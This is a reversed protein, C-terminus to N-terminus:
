RGHNFVIEKGVPECKSVSLMIGYQNADSLKERTNKSLFEMLWKKSSVHSKGVKVYKLEGRRMMGYISKKGVHLLECLHEVTLLDPYQSLTGPKVINRNTGKRTKEM